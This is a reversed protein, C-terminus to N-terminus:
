VVCVPALGPIKDCFVTQHTSVRAWQNREYRIGYYYFHTGTFTFGDADAIGSGTPNVTGVPQTAAVCLKPGQYKFNCVEWGSTISAVRMHNDTWNAVRGCIVDWPGRCEDAQAPSSPVAVALLTMLAAGAVAAIRRVM